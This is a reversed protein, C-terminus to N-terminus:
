RRRRRRWGRRRGRLWDGKDALSSTPVLHHPHHGPVVTSCVSKLARTPIKFGPNPPVPPTYYYYITEKGRMELGWFITHNVMCITKVTPVQNQNKTLSSFYFATLSRGYVIEAIKSGKRRKTTKKIPLIPLKQCRVMKLGPLWFLKM